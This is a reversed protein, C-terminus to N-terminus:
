QVFKGKPIKSTDLEEQMSLISCMSQVRVYSNLLEMWYREIRKWLEYWMLGQTESYVM